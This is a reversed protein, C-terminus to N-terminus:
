HSLLKSCYFCMRKSSVSELMSVSMSFLNTNALFKQGTKDAVDGGHQQTLVHSRIVAM